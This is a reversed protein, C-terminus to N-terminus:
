AGLPTVSRAKEILPSENPRRLVMMLAPLYICVVALPLYALSLSATGSQDRPIFDRGLLAAYSGVVLVFMEARTRPILFVFLQDYLFAAQPVAALCVLLRAEPRRWRLVSLALPAGWWHSLPVNYLGAISSTRHAGVWHALWAPDIAFAVLALIGGGVVGIVIPRVRTQMAFLGIAINPKVAVALILLPPFMTSAMFLPAWQVSECVMYACASLLMLLPWRESATVAYALLGFGAGVVLLGGIWPPCWIVPLAVLAATLPYYFGGGFPAAPGVVAYPDHGALLARAALWPYSFDGGQIWDRRAWLLTGAVLMSLASAVVAYRTRERRTPAAM